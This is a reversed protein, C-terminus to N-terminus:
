TAPAYCNQMYACPVSRSNRKCKIRWCLALCKRNKTSLFGTKRSKSCSQPSFSLIVHQWKRKLNETGGTTQMIQGCTNWMMYVDSSKHLTIMSKSKPHPRSLSQLLTHWFAKGTKALKLFSRPPLILVTYLKNLRRGVTTSVIELPPQDITSVDTYHKHVSIRTQRQGHAINSHTALRIHTIISTQKPIIDHWESSKIGQLEKWWCHHEKGVMDKHCALEAYHPMAKEKKSEVRHMEWVRLM